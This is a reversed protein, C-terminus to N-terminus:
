NAAASNRARFGVPFIGDKALAAALTLKNIQGDAFTWARVEDYNLSQLQEAFGVWKREFEEHTGEYTGCVVSMSVRNGLKLAMGMRRNGDHTMRIDDASYGYERFFNFVQLARKICLEDSPTAGLTDLLIRLDM